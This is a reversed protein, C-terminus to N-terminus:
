GMAIFTPDKLELVVTEFQTDGQRTPLSCESVPFLTQITDITPQISQSIDFQTVRVVWNRRKYSGGGTTPNVHGLQRPASFVIVEIGTVSWDNPVEPPSIRIAPYTAGNPRKYTGLQSGLANQIYTKITQPTM